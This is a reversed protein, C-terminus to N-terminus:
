VCRFCIESTSLHKFVGDNNITSTTLLSLHGFTKAFTKKKELAGKHNMHV